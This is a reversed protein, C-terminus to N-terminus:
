ALRAPTAGAAAALDAPAIPFVADPAGAAAWVQAHALLTEDIWVPLPALHGLPAVGGIAFGTEARVRKPDARRLPEGAAAAALAPDAQHAGSVLLLVLRGTTEGEFVLSKVIQAELCGCAAAAEAATRTSAPMRLVQASLGAAALAAQVRAVSDAPKAAPKDAPATM